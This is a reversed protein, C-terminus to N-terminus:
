DVFKPAITKRDSWLFLEDEASRAMGSLFVEDGGQFPTDVLEAIWDGSNPDASPGQCRKQPDDVASVAVQIEAGEGLAPTTIGHVVLTKTQEDFNLEDFANFAM